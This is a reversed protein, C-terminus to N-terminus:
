EDVFASRKRAYRLGPYEEVLGKGQLSIIIFMLTSLDINLNKMLDEIFIPEPSLFSLVLREEQTINFNREKKVEYTINYEELIDFVDIVMKAGDKILKNTGVSREDTLRGPIAFVDRGENAAFSATILAGSKEGAEIILVGQCIGSIIRNRQPFTYRAPKTGLPYESIIAGNEIIKEALKLNGSPYIHDLSSGLVAFTKGGGEIAGRHAYTDIGYALGSVVIFGYKVLEKSFFEAMKIGYSSPKRTGVIGIFKDGKLDGKYLLFIPANKIEKLLPPFDEEWFTTMKVKNKELKEWERELDFKRRFIIFEQILSSGLFLNILENESLLFFDKPSVIDIWERWRRFLPSFFSLAYIYPKDENKFHYM